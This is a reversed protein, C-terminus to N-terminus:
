ITIVKLICSATQPVPNDSSGSRIKVYMAAQTVDSPVQIACGPDVARLAENGNADLLNYFNVNDDSIQFSINAPTWNPPALIMEASVGTLDGVTSLSQGAAITLAISGKPMKM